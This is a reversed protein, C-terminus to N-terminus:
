FMEKYTLKCVRLLESLFIKMLVVNGTQISKAFMKQEYKVQYIIFGNHKQSVAFSCQKLWIFIESNIVFITTVFPYWAVLLLLPLLYLSCHVLQVNASTTGKCHMTERIWLANKKAWGCFNFFRISFRFFVGAFGFRFRLVYCCIM